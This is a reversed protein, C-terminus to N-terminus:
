TNNYRREGSEAFKRHGWTPDTTDRPTDIHFMTRPGETVIEARYEDGYHRYVARNLALDECGAGEYAEDFRLDGLKKRTISFQSNGFIPRDTELSKNGAEPKGYAEFGRRYRDRASNRGTGKADYDAFWQDLLSERDQAGELECVAAPPLYRVRYCLRTLGSDRLLSAGQLWLPGVIADADLFTLIDGTSALIGWNLLAPKNFVVRPTPDNLVTTNADQEFPPADSGNDVIIVEYDTAECQRASHRISWLCLALHRNRNRHPIIISHRM